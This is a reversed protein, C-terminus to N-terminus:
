SRVAPYNWPFRPAPPTRGRSPLPRRSYARDRVAADALKRLLAIGRQVRAQYHAALATNQGQGSRGCAQALVYDRLYRECAEPLLAPVDNEQLPEDAPIISEWVLLADVSSRWDRAGGLPPRHHGQVIPWYARSESTVRRVLGSGLWPPAKQATSTSGFPVWGFPVWGFPVWGGSAAGSVLAGVGQQNKAQYTREGRFHRPIGRRGHHLSYAQRYTPAVTFIDFMRNRGLGPTWHTPMGPLTLWAIESADLERTTVPQLPEHNWWVGRIREHHRPLAFTFEQAGEVLSREWPQTYAAPGSTTPVGALHQVEWAFTCEYRGDYSTYTWKWTTSGGRYRAEWDHTHTMGIRGPVELMTLRAACQSQAVIQRYGADAWSLLETRPWIAGADHLRSQVADLIDGVTM